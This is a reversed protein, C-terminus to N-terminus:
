DLPSPVQMRRPDRMRAYRTTTTIHRHGLLQQIVRLETGAELLHTAFAHRLTHPTVKMGLGSRERARQVVNQVSRASWPGGDRSEFLPHVSSRGANLWRLEPVLRRAIITLRDKNGKGSRVRVVRADLDVDGVNLAVLESVRVGTAYLFLVAIQHRRNAICAALQLVEEKSPVDPLHDGRRPRPVSLDAEEWRYLEFYLFKLASVCQDTLTRSAGAQLLESLWVKPADSPANRPVVPALWEAYRRLCSVYTDITRASYNRLYMEQRVRELLLPSMPAM